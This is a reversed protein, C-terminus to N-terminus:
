EDRELLPLVELERKIIREFEEREIGAARALRFLSKMDTSIHQKIAMEAQTSAEAERELREVSSSSGASAPRPHNLASGEDWPNEHEAHELAIGNATYPPPFSSDYGRPGPNTTEAPETEPERPPPRAAGSFEGGKLTSEGAVLGEEDPDHADLAPQVEAAYRAFYELEALESQSPLQVRSSAPPPAPSRKQAPTVGGPTRDYSAWYDDDDDEADNGQTQAPASATHHGNTTGNAQPAKRTFSPGADENAEAISEFWRAGDEGDEIGRLEALRWGKDDGTCWLYTPLLKFEDLVLRVHLTEPDLRRYLIAEPDRLEIEGSVPHPELQIEEVIGPLKSAAHADWCLLPLWSESSLLQVRQRLIPSLLPLLAPPPKSSAFATPLCALLPPLLDRPAPPSLHQIM